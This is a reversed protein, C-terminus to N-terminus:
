GSEVGLKSVDLDDSPQFWGCIPHFRVHIGNPTNAWLCDLCGGCVSTLRGAPQVIGIATMNMM